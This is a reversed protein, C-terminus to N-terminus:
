ENGDLSIILEDLRRVIHIKEPVLLGNTVMAARMGLRQVESVLDGVDPRLLPEGGLFKVRVTGLGARDGLIRLHVDTGLQPDVRNPCNCYGCRANCANLLSYQVFFPRPTDIARAAVIKAGIILKDSTKM